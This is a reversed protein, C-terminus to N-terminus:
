QEVKIVYYTFTKGPAVLTQHPTGPSVHVIDGTHMVHETGGVVRAGRVEGRASTKSDPITGGEIETAEGDLVLFFDSPHEHLEAGGSHTRVTLMTFHRPYKKLTVSAIGSPSAQAQKLLEASQARLEGQTVEDLPAVEASTGTAVATQMATSAQLASASLTFVIAALLGQLRLAPLVKQRRISRFKPIGIM